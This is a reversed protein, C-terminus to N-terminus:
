AQKSRCPEPCSKCMRHSPAEGFDRARPIRRPVGDTSRTSACTVPQPPAQPSVPASAGSASADARATQAVLTTPFFTLLLFLAVAAPSLGLLELKPPHLDHLLCHVDRIIDKAREALSAIGEALAAPVVGTQVGLSAIEMCLLSLKQGLNDHLDRAIRHRESEQAAILRGALLAVELDNSRRVAAGKRRAREAGPPRVRPTASTSCATNM